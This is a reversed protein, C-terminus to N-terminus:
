KGSLAAFTSRISGKTIVVFSKKGDANKKSASAIGVFSKKGTTFAYVPAGAVGTLPHTEKGTIEGFLSLTTEYDIKVLQSAGYIFLKSKEDIKYENDTQHLDITDIKVNQSINKLKYFALDTTTKSTGAAPSYFIRKKDKILPYPNSEIKNLTKNYFSVVMTTPSTRHAAADYVSTDEAKLNTLIHYNTVLYYGDDQKMVFGSGNSILKSGQYTTVKATKRKYAAESLTKQSYGNCCLACLALFVICRKMKM